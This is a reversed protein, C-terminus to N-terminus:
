VKIYLLALIRNLDDISYFHIEVKGKQEKSRSINVMTGFHYRLKEMQQLIDPDESPLQRVTRIKITSAYKGVQAKKEIDRVSLIDAIIKKAMALQAAPDDLALLARAHGMTLEKRRLMNQIDEPLKLLRLFNTYYKSKQWGEPLNRRAFSQM